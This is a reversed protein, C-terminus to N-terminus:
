FVAGDGMSWSPRTKGKGKDSRPATTSDAFPTSTDDEEPITEWIRVTGDDSASAFMQQNHPHWAVSNVNGPGHGELVELLVGTDLQWIYVKRDESGSVVFNGNVGGFCSRIVDQGQKQGTYRRQQSGTRINWLQIEDPAHNILAYQSDHSVKVSSPDGNLPISLEPQKTALNYVILRNTSAMTQSSGPQGESTRAIPPPFAADGSGIPQYNIGVTVLRAFDPTIAMDTIRVPTQGWTDQIMGEPSWHIIRRDLGGSIFGSGDPLWALSTVTESHTELRKFCSGTTTNWMKIVNDASTLLVSDDLSWALCGVSYNHDRLYHQVTCDRSLPDKEPGIRWIIATTDKGASALYEGSHSWEVSWVEDEHMQLIMTTNRPFIAGSCQHDKYLSWSLSDSPANHYLCHHIQHSRAQDLLTPLRQRPLMISSPMYRQIDELLRHRSWGAAGDWGSQARLDEPGSCMIYSSLSNLYDSDAVFPALDDRLVHLAAGTLQAELLELYKQQSILFEAEWLNEGLAASLHSLIAKADDWLGDIINRRFEAVESSETVYGSEAELTAASEAYGIDRLSQVVVRIFEERDISSGEFLHTGPLTVRSPGSAELSKLAGASKKVGNSNIPSSVGNTPSTYSFGNTGRSPPTDQDTPTSEREPLRM